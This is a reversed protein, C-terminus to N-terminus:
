FINKAIYSLSNIALNSFDVRKSISKQQCVQHSNNWLTFWRASSVFGSQQSSILHGTPLLNKFDFLRKNQLSSESRTSWGYKKDIFQVVGSQIHFVLSNTQAQCKQGISWKIEVDTICDLKKKKKLNNQTILINENSTIRSDKKPWRLLMRFDIQPWKLTMVSYKQSCQANM